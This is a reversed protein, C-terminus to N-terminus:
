DVIDLLGDAKLQAKQQENPTIADITGQAEARIRKEEEQTPPSFVENADLLNNRKMFEENQKKTTIVPGDRVSVAKFGGGPLDYDKWHVFPASTIYYTMHEDCCMPLDVPLHAIPLIKDLVMEHCKKCRFDYTPM